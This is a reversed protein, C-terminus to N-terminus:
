PSPRGTVVGPGTSTISTIDGCGTNGPPLLPDPNNLLGFGQGSIIGPNSCISSTNGVFVPGYDPDGASAFQTPIVNYLARRFPFGPNALDPIIGNIRRM